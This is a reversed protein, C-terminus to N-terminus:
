VKAYYLCSLYTQGLQKNIQIYKNNQLHLCRVHKYIKVFILSM